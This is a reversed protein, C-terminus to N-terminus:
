QRSSAHGDVLKVHCKNKSRDEGSSSVTSKIIMGYLKQNKKKKKRKPFYLM